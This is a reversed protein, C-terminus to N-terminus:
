LFYSLSEHGYDIKELYKLIDKGKNLKKVKLKANKPKFYKNPLSTYVYYCVLVVGFYPLVHYVVVDVVKMLYPYLISIYNFICYEAIRLLLYTVIILGILYKPDKMWKYVDEIPAM